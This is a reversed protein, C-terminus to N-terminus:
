PRCIMVYRRIVHKVRLVDIAARARDDHAPWAPAIPFAPEYFISFSYCLRVTPSQPAPQLWPFTPLIHFHDLPFNM